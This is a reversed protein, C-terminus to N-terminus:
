VKHEILYIPRTPALEAVEKLRKKQEAYRKDKISAALDDTRKREILVKM